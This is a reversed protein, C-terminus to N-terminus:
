DTINVDSSLNLINRHQGLNEQFAEYAPHLHPFVKWLILFCNITCEFRETPKKKKKVKNDNNNLVFVRGARNGLDTKLLFDVFMWWIPRQHPTVHLPRSKPSPHWTRLFCPFLCPFLTVLCLLCLWPLAMFPAPVPDQLFALVWRRISNKLAGWKKFRM